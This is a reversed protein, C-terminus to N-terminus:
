IISNMEQNVKNMKKQDMAEKVLKKRLYYIVCLAIGAAVVVVGICM